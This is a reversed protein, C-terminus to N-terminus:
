ILKLFQELHLTEKSHLESFFCHQHLSKSISTSVNFASVFSYLSQKHALQKFSYAILLFHNTDILNILRNEPLYSMIFKCQWIM